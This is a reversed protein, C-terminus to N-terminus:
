MIFEGCAVSFLRQAKWPFSVTAKAQVQFHQRVVSVIAGSLSFILHLSEVTGITETEHRCATSLSNVAFASEEIGNGCGLSILEDRREVYM